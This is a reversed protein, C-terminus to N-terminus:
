KESDDYIEVASFIDCLHIRNEASFRQIAFSINTEEIEQVIIEGKVLSRIRYKKM